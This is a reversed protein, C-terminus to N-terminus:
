KKIRKWGKFMGNEDRVERMIYQKGLIREKGLKRNPRWYGPHRVAKGNRWRHPHVYLEIRGKRIRTKAM